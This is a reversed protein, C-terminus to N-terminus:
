PLRRGSYERAATVLGVGWEPTGLAHLHTYSAWVNGQILGDRGRGCGTGRKVECATAVSSSEAVIRSYHFEHGRIALGRPYFPNPQDVLLEAYGHGQPTSFVEVEFPFVGAMPYRAANWRIGQSLLMLGGCEAYIPFGDQAAVKLAYLFSRNASLDAGHTEPFGGGIYLADLDRPLEIATLPSIAVLSAGSRELTELNEPYYFTLASDRLYGVRVRHAMPSDAVAPEVVQLAPAQRSLGVIRDLDLGSRVLDMLNDRLEGIRPHDEPTVLGLHRAPLLTQSAARPLTGLVPVGCDREVADRLIREHRTGNVQNLIVGGIHVQPDLRQCGLVSAAVTRTVKTANVILLVPAKLIKALAATSHTGDADLGDYLGRNGEIINFGDASASRSFSAICADFGMLYTDLNRAPHGAAWSLWAADIYDPGKKFARVAHGRERLMFLLGLALLTKGSDGSMGAIVIRPNTASANM